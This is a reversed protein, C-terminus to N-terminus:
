TFNKTLKEGSTDDIFHALFQLKLSEQAMCDKYHVVLIIFLYNTNTNDAQLLLM